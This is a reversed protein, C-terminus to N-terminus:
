TAERGDRALLVIMVAVLLTTPLLALLAPGGAAVTQGLHVCWFGGILVAAARPWRGAAVGAVVFGAAVALMAVLKGVDPLRSLGYVVDAGAVLWLLLRVARAAGQAVVLSILVFLAVAAEVTDRVFATRDAVDALAVPLMALLLLFAWMGGRRAGDRQLEDHDGAWGLERCAVPVAISLLAVAAVAADPVSTPALLYAAVLGALMLITPWALRLSREAM